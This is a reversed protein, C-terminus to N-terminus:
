TDAAGLEGAREMRSRLDQAPSLASNFRVHDKGDRLVLSRRGSSLERRVVASGEAISPPIRNRDMFGVPIREPYLMFSQQDARYLDSEKLAHLLDLSEKPTLMGSGLVAVQGELMADLHQVHHGSSEFELLNYSHYMGDPKRNNEITARLHEGVCDLFGILERTEVAAQRGDLAGYVQERYDSGAQGLRDMFTKRGAPSFTEGISQRTGDFVRRVDQLLCAVEDSIEFSGAPTSHLLERFFRTFRYLYCVTVMSLGYGALANNADNWEPRQTNMWIGGGRVFKFFM